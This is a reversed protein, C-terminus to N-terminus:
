GLADPSWYFSPRFRDNDGQPLRGAHDMVAPLCHAFLAADILGAEDTEGGTRSKNSKTLCKNTAAVRVRDLFDRKISRNPGLGSKLTFANVPNAQQCLKDPM